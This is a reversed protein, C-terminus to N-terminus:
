KYEKLEVSWFCVYIQGTETDEVMDPFEETLDELQKLIAKKAEALTRCLIEPRDIFTVRIM